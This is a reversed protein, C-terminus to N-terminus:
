SGLHGPNTPGQIRGQVIGGQLRLQVRRPRGGIVLPGHGVEGVDVLLKAALPHRQPEQPLFVLEVMRIVSILVALEALPVASEPLPDIHHHPLVM